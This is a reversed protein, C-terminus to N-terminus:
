SGLALTHLKAQAPAHIGLCSIAARVAAQADDWTFGSRYYGSCREPYMDCLQYGSQVKACAHAWTAAGGSAASYRLLTGDSSLLM